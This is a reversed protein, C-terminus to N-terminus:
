QLEINVNGGADLVKVMNSIGKADTTLIGPRRKMHDQMSIRKPESGGTPSADEALLVDLKEQFLIKRDIDMRDMLKLTSVSLDDKSGYLENKTKLYNILCKTRDTPKLSKMEYGKAKKQNDKNDVATM